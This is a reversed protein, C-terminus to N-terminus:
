KIPTLEKYNKGIEIKVPYKGSEMISQLGKVFDLGDDPCYDILFSDYTYLILQSSFSSIYNELNFIVKLNVETELMQIIYNFFKWKTQPGITLRTLKRKLLPTTYHGTDNYEKWLYDVTHSVKKFFEIHQYQPQIGGYLQRFSIKKSEERQHDTLANTKFYQEGLIDHVSKHFDFPHKVIDSLLRLHYSEYDFQILLGNQFRSIFQKRTNDKKNLAAFNIGGFRNSPRGTATYINYDSYLIGHKSTHLGAREIKNFSEFVYKNYSKLIEGNVIDIFPLVKDKIRRAWEIHKALPVIDNINHANKHIRYLFDHAPTLLDNAEFLQGQTYYYLLGLDYGFSYHNLFSKKDWVLCKINDDVDIKSFQTADFHNLSVAYESEDSVFYFYFLSIRNKISHIFNDSYVPVCISLEYSLRKQLTVLSDSDEIVILM